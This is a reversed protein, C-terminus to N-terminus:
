SACCFQDRVRIMCCGPPCCTSGCLHSVTLPYRSNHEYIPTNYLKPAILQNPIGLRNLEDAKLEALYEWDLAWIRMLFPKEGLITELDLNRFLRPISYMINDRNKKISTFRKTLLNFFDASYNYTSWTWGSGEIPKKKWAYELIDNIAGGISFVHVNSPAALEYRNQLFGLDNNINSFKLDGAGEDAYHSSEDQFIFIIRSENESLGIAIQRLFDEGDFTQIGYRTNSRYGSSLLSNDEDDDQYSYCAIDEPSFISHYRSMLPKNELSFRSIPCGFVTLDLSGSTDIFILIKTKVNLGNEILIPFDFFLPPLDKYFGSNNRHERIFVSIKEGFKCPISQLITM